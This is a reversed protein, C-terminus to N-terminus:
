ILVKYSGCTLVHGAHTRALIPSYVAGAVVGRESVRKQRRHGGCVLDAAFQLDLASAKFDSYDM